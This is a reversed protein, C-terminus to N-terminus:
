IHYQNKLIEEFEKSEILKLLKNDNVYQNQNLDELKYGKTTASEIIRVAQLDRRTQLYLWSLLKVDEYTLNNLNYILQETTLNNCETNIDTGLLKSIIKRVSTIIKEMDLVNKYLYREQESTGRVNTSVLSTQVANRLLSIIVDEKKIDTQLDGLYDNDNGYYLDTLLIMKDYPTIELMFMNDDINRASKKVNLGYEINNSLSYYNRIYSIFCNIKNNISDELPIGGKKMMFSYGEEILKKVSENKNYAEKLLDILDDYEVKSYMDDIIQKLEDMSDVQKQFYDQKSVMTNENTGKYFSDIRKSYLYLASSFDCGMLEELTKEINISKFFPQASRTIGSFDGKNMNRLSVDVIKMITYNTKLELQRDVIKKMENDFQEITIM